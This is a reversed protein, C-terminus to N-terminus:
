RDDIIYWKEVDMTDYYNPAKIFKTKDTKVAIVHAVYISNYDTLFLQMPNDRSVEDYIDELKEEHPHEYDRIKSKIKGFAVSGKDKLIELHQEIM